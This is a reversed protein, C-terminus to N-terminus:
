GTLGTTERSLNETSVYGCASPGRAPKIEVERILGDRVLGAVALDFEARRLGLTRYISRATIGGPGAALIMQLIRDEKNHEEVVRRNSLSHLLRHASARWGEAISQGRAWHALSVIPVPAGDGEAWDLTALIVAIKFAQSPLRGYVGWLRKDPAEPSTLIDRIMARAYARWADHVGDGLQVDYAQPAAPYVPKPLKEEALRRLTRTLAQPPDCHGPKPSRWPPLESPTLLAFRPWLGSGWLFDLDTRMLSAATTSGLFSLYTNHAVVKGSGRTLKEVEPDCDSLRLLYYPLGANYDRKFSSFLSAAEDLVIGRQAAFNRRETWLSRDEEPLDQLGLPQRGAFDDLLAEPSFESVALLHPFVARALRKAINMGTTKAYITTDCIWLVLLNPYLDDHRLRLRVRRAIAVSGLWLGASQHLEPPTLPSVDCAFSVYADLWRGVEAAQAETEATLRAAQPLDPVIPGTADPLRTPASDPSGQLVARGAKGVRARVESAQRDTLKTLADEFAALRGGSSAEAAAQALSAWPEDFAGPEIDTVPAGALLRAVLWAGDPTTSEQSM